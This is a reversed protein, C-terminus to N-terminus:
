KKPEDLVECAALIFGLSCIGTAILSTTAFATSMHNWALGIVSMSGSTFMTISLISFVAWRKRSKAIRASKETPSEEKDKPYMPVVGQKRYM